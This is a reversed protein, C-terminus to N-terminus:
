GHVVAACGHAKALLHTVFCFFLFVSFCFFLFIHASALRRACLLNVVFLAAPFRFGAFLLYALTLALGSPFAVSVLFRGTLVAYCGGLAVFGGLRHNRIQGRKLLGGAGSLEGFGSGAM